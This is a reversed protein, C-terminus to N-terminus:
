QCTRRVIIPITSRRTPTQHLSANRYFNGSADSATVVGGILYDETFTVSEGGLMAQMQAISLTPEQAVPTLDPAEWPQECATLILALTIIYLQKM